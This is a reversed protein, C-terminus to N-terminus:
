QSIKSVKPGKPTDVVDYGLKKLNNRIRDAKAWDKHERAAEREGVIKMIAVPIREEKPAFDIGFIRSIEDFFALSDKILTKNHLKDKSVLRNLERILEFVGALAESTNFNSDMAKMFVDLYDDIKVKAEEKSKESKSSKELFTLNGLLNQIRELSAKSDDLKADDYDIPNNYATQLYFFRLTQPSHKKLADSITIFNNMSKSMKEGKVNLFGAHLWYKVYPKKGTLAEAQAIEAEHHPFILDRAGGHLDYQEGFYKMAIATDEIHWGSRGKGWPSDWAPEGPKHRKWLSFDGPNRKNPNPEIRSNTADNPDQGSLKGYDKFKSIDFYIGDELKYAYGKKLLGRVQEIIQPIHKTAYEFKDVSTVNLKKMVEHYEKMYREVIENVPIKKEHSRKILRDDIDTVNQLYFVDFGKYRLYRAIVDFAVYTKAHGIHPSDYPTLGCVFMKVKKGSPKFAELKRTLTNYVKLM